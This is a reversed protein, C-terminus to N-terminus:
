GYQFIENVWNQHSQQINTSTTRIGDQSISSAGQNENQFFSEEINLLEPESVSLQLKVNLRVNILGIKMSHFAFKYNEQQNDAM